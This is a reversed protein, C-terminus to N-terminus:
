VELEAPDFAGPSDFSPDLVTGPPVAVGHEGALAPDTYLVPDDELAEATWLEGLLLPGGPGIGGTIV